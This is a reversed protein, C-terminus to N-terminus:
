SMHTVMHRKINAKLSTSYSCISCKLTKKATHVLMHQKISSKQSSSYLCLQCKFPKEGTHKAMHRKIGSKHSASFSCESCEFPKEGTHTLMHAKLSSNHPSFYSCLQCKVCKEPLKNTIKRSSNNKAIFYKYTNRSFENCSETTNTASYGLFGKNQDESTTNSEEGHNFTTPNSESLISINTFVEQDPDPKITFNNCTLNSVSSFKQQTLNNASSYNKLPLNENLVDNNTSCMSFPDKIVLNSTIQSDVKEIETNVAVATVDHPKTKKVTENQPKSVKNYDAIVSQICKHKTNESHKPHKNYDVIM